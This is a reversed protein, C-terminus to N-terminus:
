LTLCICLVKCKFTQVVNSNFFIVVNGRRSDEMDEEEEESAAFPCPCSMFVHEMVHCRTPLVIKFSCQFCVYGCLTMMNEKPPRGGEGEM